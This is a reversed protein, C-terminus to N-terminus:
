RSGNRLEGGGDGALREAAAPADTAIQNCGAAFGFFGHEVLDDRVKSGCVVCQQAHECGMRVPVTAGGMCAGRAGAM